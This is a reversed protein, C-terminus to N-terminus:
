VLGFYKRTFWEVTLSLVLLFLLSKWDVLPVVKQESKEIPLYRDSTNLHTILRELKDPFYVEGNSNSALHTLNKFNPNVFQQEINFDLVQFTGSRSINEQQNEISFSYNGPSLGSLNVEYSNNKLVLPLTQNQKTEKHTLQIQLAARSDFVYTKDFFQASISIHDTSNYFSEHSVELRSSRKGSSLYQIFNGTFQDFAKFDGNQVYSYARWKWFGEGDWVAIKTAGTEFSFLMPTDMAVGQIQQEFLTSFPVNIEFNGLSTQLPPFRSFGIDEISFASYNTNLHPQIEEKPYTVNRYFNNQIRNIFRWDTNIGGVLLHNMHTHNVLEYVKQFAATPQYLIVLQFEGIIELAEAPTAITVKRQENSAISRQLAGLDPHSIASVILVNTAQDIVEVAFPKRNNDTNKENELAQVVATYQQVGVQNAPLTTQIIQSTNSPGLSLPEKHLVTNGHRIEFSTTITEDGSFSVFIEVPFENKLYAYRNTNIQAVSIDNYTTTDGVVIPYVSNKQTGYAFAYDRGLTQNGDSILIIPATHNKYLQAITQLAKNIQTQSESFTLSDSNKLENGFTYFNIDFKENLQSHTQVTTVMSTVTEEQALHKVSSSNDTLVVLNPKVTQYNKQIIKPNILLVLIVFITFSRLMGFFWQLSRSLKTRFGYMYFALAVAVVAALAILLYTQTTM